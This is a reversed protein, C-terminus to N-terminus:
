RAIGRGGPDSYPTQKITEQWNDVAANITWHKNYGNFHRMLHLIDPNDEDAWLNCSPYIKGESSELDYYYDFIRERRKTLEEDYKFEDGFRYGGHESHTRYGALDPLVVMEDFDCGLRNVYALIHRMCYEFTDENGNVLYRKNCNHGDGIIEFCESVFGAYVYGKEKLRPSSYKDVETCSLELFIKEGKNNTFVTRIRCNGVDTAKSTDTGFWGAGEFYLTKM